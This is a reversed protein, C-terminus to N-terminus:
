SFQFRKFLDECIEFPFFNKLCGTHKKLQKFHKIHKFNVYKQQFKYRLTTWIKTRQSINLSKFINPNWNMTSKSIPLHARSLERRFAELRTHKHHQRTFSAILNKTKGLQYGNQKQGRSPLEELEDDTPNGLNTDTEAFSQSEHFSRYGWWSGKESFSVKFSVIRDHPPPLWRGVKWEFM